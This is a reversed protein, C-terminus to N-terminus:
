WNGFSFAASRSSFLRRKSPGSFARFSNQFLLLGSTSALRSPVAPGGGAPKFPTMLFDIQLIAAGDKIEM